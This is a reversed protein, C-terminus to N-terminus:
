NFSHWSDKFCHYRDVPTIKIFWFNLFITQKKSENTNVTTWSFKYKTYYMFSNHHKLQKMSFLVKSVPFIFIRLTALVKSQNYIYMYIYTLSSFLSDNFRRILLFFLPWICTLRATYFWIQNFDLSRVVANM